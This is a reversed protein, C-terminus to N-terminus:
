EIRPVRHSKKDAHVTRRRHMGTRRGRYRVPVQEVTKNRDQVRLGHVEPVRKKNMYGRILMRYRFDELREESM